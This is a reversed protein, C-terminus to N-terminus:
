FTSYDCTLCWHDSHPRFVNLVHRYVAILCRVEGQLLLQADAKRKQLEAPTLLNDLMSMLDGAAAFHKVHYDYYDLARACNDHHVQVVREMDELEGLDDSSCIEALTPMEDDTGVETQCELLLIYYM